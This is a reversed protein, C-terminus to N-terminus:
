SLGGKKILRRFTDFPRPNYYYEKLVKAKAKELPEITDLYFDAQARAVLKVVYKKRLLKIHFLFWIKNFHHSIRRRYEDYRVTKPDSPKSRLMEEFIKEFDSAHKEKFQTLKLLASFIENSSYADMIQTIIQALSTKKTARASMWAFIAALTLIILSILTFFENVTLGLKGSLGAIITTFDM